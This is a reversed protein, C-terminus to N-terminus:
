ARLAGLVQARTPLDLRCCTASMVAQGTAVDLGEVVLTPSPYQGTLVQVDLDIGSQVRCEEVLALLRDVLPCGPVQLVQVQRQTSTSADDIM